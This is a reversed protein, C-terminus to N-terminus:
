PLVAHRVTTEIQLRRAPRGSTGGEEAVVEYRVAGSVLGGWGSSWVLTANVHGEYVVHGGDATTTSEPDIPGDISLFALTDRTRGVLSDVVVAGRALLVPRESGVELDEGPIGGPLALSVVWRDGARVPRDPVTFGPIGVLLQDLVGREV